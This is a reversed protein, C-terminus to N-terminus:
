RALYGIDPLVPSPQSTSENPNVPLYRYYVELTLCALATSFVRGGREGWVINTDWCGDDDGGGRRQSEVLSERTRENWKKWADNQLQVLSLSAYYWGYFDNRSQRMLFTSAEEEAEPTITDGLLIRSLLLEGTMAPTPSSNPQYGALVKNRGRSTIRVYKMAGDRSAQPWEFGLQQASHLAMIQWGFISTDGYEGPVYRWGGTERNQAKVIYDAGKMAAETIRADGTMLAAEALALTAIGQDYMNGADAGGGAMPGRLDGNPKQRAILFDVADAVVEKYPGTRNPTHDGALFCLTALGTLGMDHPTRGRRGRESNPMVYTWRGDPEQQRAFYSLARSVADESEKNGGLREILPKRAQVSRQSLPEPAAVRPGAISVELNLPVAVVEGGRPRYGAGAGGIGGGTGAAAGDVPPANPDGLRPLTGPGAPVGDGPAALRAAALLPEDGSMPGTPGREAVARGAGNPSPGGIPSLSPGVPAAAEAATRAPDPGESGRSAGVGIPRTSPASAGIGGAIGRAGVPSAAIAVSQPQGVAGAGDGPGRAVAARGQTPNEETAGLSTSPTEAAKVPGRSGGGALAPPGAPLPDVPAGPEPKVGAGAGAGAILDGIRPVSAPAGIANGAGAGGGPAGAAAVPIGADIPSPGEDAGTGGTGLTGQRELAVSAPAAGAGPSRPGAAAIRESPVSPGQVTPGAGLGAAGLAAGDGPRPTGGSDISLMNPRVLHPASAVGGGAGAGSASTAGAPQVGLAVQQPAAAPPVSANSRPAAVSPAEGSARAEPEVQAIRMSSQFNLEPAAPPLTQTPVGIAVRDPVVVAPQRQPPAVAVTMGDAAGRNAGPVDVALQQPDIGLQEATAQEQALGAPEPMDVVTDSIQRRVEAGIDVVGGSGGGGGPVVAVMGEMGGGEARVMEVIQKSVAVLSLAITLLVHFLLSVLLCKQILNLRHDNWGRFFSLLPLLLLIAGLLVWWSWGLTPRARAERLVYVERSESALLDYGGRAQPSDRDSSFFLHFGGVALQPDTENEPTNIQPGLNEPTSLSGDDRLRCRYIDFKGIGGPRNSAFYLFDGASSVCSAGEHYPTNVGPVETADRYALAKVGEGRYEPPLTPTPPEQSKLDLNESQPPGGGRGEGRLVPSLSPAVLEEREAVYLDYDGVASQRITARWAQKQEASAARRNSAFYLRLGDPTPAPSYDNFESNITPDLNFPTGWAGDDNREVAWIDYGGLGGERDSYFLLFRGDPTLRPGLDDSPSNVGDLPAPELWRGRERRSLYIEANRGAKGRVFFLENGDPSISPEYEEDASNFHEAPPQPVTWLIERVTADSSRVRITRDDTWVRRGSFYWAAGALLACLVVGPIVYRLARRRSIPTPIDPHENM